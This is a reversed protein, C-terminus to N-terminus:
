NFNMEVNILNTEIDPKRKASTKNMFTLWQFFTPSGKGGSFVLSVHFPDYLCLVQLNLSNFEVKPAFETRPNMCRMGLTQKEDAYM